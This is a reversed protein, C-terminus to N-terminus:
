LASCFLTMESSKFPKVAIVTFLFWGGCFRLALNIGYAGFVFLDM